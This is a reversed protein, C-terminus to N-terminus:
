PPLLHPPVVSARKKLWVGPGRKQRWGTPEPPLVFRYGLALLVRRAMYRNCSKGAIKEIYAAATPLSWLGAPVAVGVAKPEDALARSIKTWQKANLGLSM